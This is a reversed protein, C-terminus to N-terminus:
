TSAQKSSPIGTCPMTLTGVYQYTLRVRVGRPDTLTWSYPNTGTIAFAAITPRFYCVWGPAIGPYLRLNSINNRISCRCSSNEYRHDPIQKATAIRFMGAVFEVVSRHLHKRAHPVSLWDGGDIIPFPHCFQRQSLVIEVDDVLEVM